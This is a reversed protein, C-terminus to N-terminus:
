ASLAGGYIRSLGALGEVGRCQEAADELADAQGYNGASGTVYGITFGSTLEAKVTAPSPGVSTKTGGTGRRRTHAWGGM